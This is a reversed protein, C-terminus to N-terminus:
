HEQVPAMVQRGLWGSCYICEVVLELQMTGEGLMDGAVHLGGAAIMSVELVQQTGVVVLWEGVAVELSPVEGGAAM